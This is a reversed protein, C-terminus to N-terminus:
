PAMVESIGQLRVPVSGQRRLWALDSAVDSASLASSPLLVLEDPGDDQQALQRGLVAASMPQGNLYWSGGSSRVVLWRTPPAAGAHMRQRLVPTRHLVLPFSALFTMLTLVIVGFSLVLPM